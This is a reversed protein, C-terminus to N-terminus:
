VVVGCVVFWGVLLLGTCAFPRAFGRRFLVCNDGGGWVVVGLFVGAMGESSEAECQTKVLPLLKEKKATANVGRATLVRLAHANERCMDRKDFIFYFFLLLCFFFLFFCRFGFLCVFLLFVMSSDSGRTASLTTTHVRSCNDSYFLVLSFVQFFFLFVSGTQIAFDKVM